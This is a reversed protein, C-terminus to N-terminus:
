SAPEYPKVIARIQNAFKMSIETTRATHIGDKRHAFDAYAPAMLPDLRMLSEKLVKIDAPSAKMGEKDFQAENVAPWALLSPPRAPAKPLQDLTSLIAM